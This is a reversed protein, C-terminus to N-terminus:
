VPKRPIKGCCTMLIKAKTSVHQYENRHGLPFARSQVQGVRQRCLPPQAYVEGVCPSRESRTKGTIGNPNYRTVCGPAAMDDEDQSWSPTTSELLISVVRFLNQQSQSNLLYIVRPARNKQGFFPFALPHFIGTGIARLLRKPPQPPMGQRYGHDDLRHAALDRPGTRLM